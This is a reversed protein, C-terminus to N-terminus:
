PTNIVVGDGPETALQLIGDVGAMVDPVLHVRGPDVAWGHRAAAFAAFTEGLGAPTAYGCDSLDVAARLAALVDPPHLRWKESRRRRLRDLDLDEFGNRMPVLRRLAASTRGVTVPRQARM